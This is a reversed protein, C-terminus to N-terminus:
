NEKKALIYDYYEKYKVGIKSLEREEALEYAEETVVSTNNNVIYEIQETFETNNSGKFCTKRNKLWDSYVPIDRLLAPLRMSLAELVVIGENEEYTPFFFLNASSYAGLLIEEDVFGPFIVNAPPNEIINKVKKPLINKISSAGFWIFKYEPNEKAIEVLDLVGKRQFPLGASMIIIDNDGFGFEKRFKEGLEENKSFRKIDVGNSIVRIEKDSVYKSSILNKTYNTPSILYDASNYLKKAWLKIVCSLQNSFKISGRFDESTTHTHYVVPKKKKKASRLVKWSALGITNIHAIDYDDNPDLTYDVGNLGLAKKQHELAKGVGSKSFLNKGESFLLIKAM